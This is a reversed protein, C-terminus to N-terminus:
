ASVMKLYRYVSMPTVNMANAIEAVSLGKAQLALAREPKAKTTGGKRGKYKGEKKAVAIGAAQRERRTEQEMQAFGLLVAALMSGITGNFDIQQSTCVVRLGKEIWEVLLNIGHHLKRSLRDLKYCVVTKIEGMFIAQQLEKFAPRDLTDGSHGKDIFWRVEHPDIRNGKFWRTIEERQSAENQEKTSVRVYAGIM